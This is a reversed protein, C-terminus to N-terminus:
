PNRFVQDHTCNTRLRLGDTDHEFSIRISQSARAEWIDDSGAIKRVRLSPHNIDEQMRALAAM